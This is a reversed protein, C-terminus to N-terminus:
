IVWKMCMLAIPASYVYSCFTWIRSSLCFYGKWIAAYPRIFVSMAGSKHTLLPCNERAYNKGQSKRTNPWNESMELNGGFLPWGEDISRLLLHLFNIFSTQHDLHTHTPSHKKHYYGVRTTTGTLPGNLPQTHTHTHTHTKLSFTTWRAITAFHLIQRIVSVL